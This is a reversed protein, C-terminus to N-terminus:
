QISRAMESTAQIIILVNGCINRRIPVCATVFFVRYLLLFYHKINNKKVVFYISKGIIQSCLKKSSLQKKPWFWFCISQLRRYENKGNVFTFNERKEPINHRKNTFKNFQNSPVFVFVSKCTICLIRWPYVTWTCICPNQNLSPYTTISQNM